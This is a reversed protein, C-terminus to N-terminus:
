RRRRWWIIGGVIAVLAAAGGAVYPVVSRPRDELLVLAAAGSPDETAAASTEMTTLAAAYREHVAAAHEITEALSDWQAQPTAPPKDGRLLTQGQAVSEGLKTILGRLHPGPPQRALVQLQLDLVNMFKVLSRERVERGRRELSERLLLHDGSAVADAKDPAQGTRRRGFPSDGGIIESLRGYDREGLSGATMPSHPPRQWRVPFPQTPRM